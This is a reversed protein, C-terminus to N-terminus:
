STRIAPNRRRASGSKVLRCVSAVLCVVCGLGIAAYGIQWPLREGRDSLEYAALFGFTCFLTVAFLVVASVLRMLWHGRFLFLGLVTVFVFLVILFNMSASM